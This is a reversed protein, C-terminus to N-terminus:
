SHMVKSKSGLRQLVIDVLYGIYEGYEDDVTALNIGGLVRFLPAM